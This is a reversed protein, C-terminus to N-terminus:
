SVLQMAMGFSLLQHQSFTHVLRGGGLVDWVKLTNGGASLLLGGGPLMLVDEVPAGHDVLMTAGLNEDTSATRLDWLRM